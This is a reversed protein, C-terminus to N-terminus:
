VNKTKKRAGAALGGGTMESLRDGLPEILWDSAAVPGASFGGGRASAFGSGARRRLAVEEELEGPPCTLGLGGIGCPAFGARAARGM